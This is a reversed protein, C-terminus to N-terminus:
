RQAHPAKLNVVGFLQPTKTGRPRPLTEGSNYSIGSLSWFHELNFSKPM